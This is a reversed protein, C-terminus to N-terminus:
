IGDCCEVMHKENLILIHEHLFIQPNKKLRIIM